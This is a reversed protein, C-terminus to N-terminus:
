KSRRELPEWFASRSAPASLRPITTAHQVSGACALGIERTHLISALWIVAGSAVGCLCGSLAFGPLTVLVLTQIVLLRMAGINRIGGHLSLCVGLATTGAILGAGDGTGLRALLGALGTAVTLVLWFDGFAGARVFARSWAFLFAGTVVCMALSPAVLAHGLTALPNAGEAAVLGSWPAGITGDTVKRLIDPQRTLAEWHAHISVVGAAMLLLTVCKTHLGM